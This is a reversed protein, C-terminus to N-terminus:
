TTTKASHPLLRLVGVHRRREDRMMPVATISSGGRARMDLQSKGFCSPSPECPARAPQSRADFEGGGGVMGVVLLAVLRNHLLSSIMAGATGACSELSWVDRAHTALSADVVAVGFGHYPRLADRVITTEGHRPRLCSAAVTVFGHLIGGPRASSDRPRAPRRRRRTPAQVTDSRLM